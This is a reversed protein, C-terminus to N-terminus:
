RTFKEKPKVNFECWCVSLAFSSFLYSVKMLYHLRGSTVIRELAPFDLSCIVISSSCNKIESFLTRANKSKLFDTCDM